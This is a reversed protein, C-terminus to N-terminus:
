KGYITLVRDKLRTKIQFESSSLINLIESLPVGKDMGGEFKVDPMKGVYEVKIDYWRELQRMVEKLSLGEFYFLGNKWALAKEVDANFVITVGKSDKLQPDSFAVVAQQGPRLVASQNANIVKVSGEV